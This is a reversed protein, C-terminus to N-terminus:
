ARAGAHAAAEALLRLWSILSGDLAVQLGATDAEVPAGSWSEETSVTVGGTEPTFTWAHIGFIGGSPGGWLTHQMPDVQYVASTINMGYTSWAFNSGARLSGDLQAADISHQWTPWRDIDTHLRWLTDLAAPIFLSHRAIVPATEDIGTPDTSNM